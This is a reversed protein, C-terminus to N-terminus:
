ICILVNTHTAGPYIHYDIIVIDEASQIARALLEQQVKDTM